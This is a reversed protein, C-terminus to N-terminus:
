RGNSSLSRKWKKWKESAKELEYKIEKVHRWKKWGRFEWPYAKDNRFSNNKAHELSEEFSYACGADCLALYYSCKYYKRIMHYLSPAFDQSSINRIDGNEAVFDRIAKIRENRTEYSRHIKSPIPESLERCIKEYYFYPRGFADVMKTFRKEYDISLLYSIKEKQRVFSLYALMLANRGLIDTTYIDAGFLAYTKLLALEGDAAAYLFPTRGADDKQNINGRREVLIRAIIIKRDIRIRQLMALWMLPSTGNQDTCNPNAGMELLRKMYNIKGDRVCLMLAADVPNQPLYFFIKDDLSLQRVFSIYDEFSRLKSFHSLFFTGGIM